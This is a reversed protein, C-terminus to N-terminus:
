RSLTPTKPSPLYTSCITGKDAAASPQLRPDIEDFLEFELTNYVQATKINKRSCSLTQIAKDISLSACTPYLPEMFFSCVEFGVPQAWPNNKVVHITAASQM